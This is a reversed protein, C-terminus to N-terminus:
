DFLAQSKATVIRKEGTVLEVVASNLPLMSLERPEIRRLGSKYERGAMNVKIWSEAQENLLDIVMEKLKPDQIPQVFRGGLINTLNLAHASNLIFRPADQFFYTVFVDPLAPLVRISFWTRLELATPTTHLGRRLGERLYEQVPPEFDELKKNPLALLWCPHGSERLLDWDAESFNRGLIPIRTPLVRKLYQKPIESQQAKEDTLVFFENCGTSIGRRIKLLDRVCVDPKSPRKMLEVHLKTQEFVCFLGVANSRHQNIGTQTYPIKYIQSTWGHQRELDDRLVQAHVSGEAEKPLFFLLRGRPRKILASSDASGALEAARLLFYNISGSLRPLMVGLSSKLTTRIRERGKLNHVRVFPPNSIIFSPARLGRERFAADQLLLFNAYWVKYSNPANISELTHAVCLALIPDNEVGVYSGVPQGRRFIADAFVGTGCGADCVDDNPLPSVFSLAWKAVDASTFFQGALKRDKITRASEYLRALFTPVHVDPLLMVEHFREVTASLGSTRAPVPYTPCAIIREFTTRQAAAVLVQLLGAASGDIFRSIEEYLSEADSSMVHRTV